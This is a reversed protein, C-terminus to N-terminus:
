LFCCKARRLVRVFFCALPELGSAQANPPPGLLIRVQLGTIKLALWAVECAAWAGFALRNVVTHM